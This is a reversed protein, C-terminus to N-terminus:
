RGGRRDVGLHGVPFAAARHEGERRGGKGLVRLDEVDVDARDLRAIESARLGAYRALTAALQWRREALAMIQRYTEQSAPRPSRKPVKPRDLHLMPDATIHGSRVAWIFYAHLHGHYTARTQASWGPHALWKTLKAPTVTFLEGAASEVRTLLERRDQITTEAFGVARCSEAYADMRKYTM